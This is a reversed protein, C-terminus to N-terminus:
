RALRETGPIAGLIVWAVGNSNLTRESFWCCGTGSLANSMCLRLGKGARILTQLKVLDEPSKFDSFCREVRSWHTEIKLM